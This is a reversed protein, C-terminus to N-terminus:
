NSGAARPTEVLPQVPPILRRAPGHQTADCHIRRITAHLGARSLLVTLRGIRITLM